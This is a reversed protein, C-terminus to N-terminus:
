AKETITVTIVLDRMSSSVIAITVEESNTFTIDASTSSANLTYSSPRGSMSTTVYVTFTEQGINPLWDISLTYTGATVTLPSEYGEEGSPVTIDVPEGIKLPTVEVPEGEVISFSFKGTEMSIICFTMKEGAELYFSDTQETGNEDEAWLPSGEPFDFKYWGSTNATYEFDVASWSEFDLTFTNGAGEATFAVELMYIGAADASLILVYDKGGEVNLTLQSVTQSNYTIGTGNGYVKLTYTGDVLAPIKVYLGDESLIEDIVYAYLGPSMFTLADNASTGPGPVTTTTTNGNEDTETVEKTSAELVASAASAVSVSANASVQNLQMKVTEGVGLALYTVGNLETTEVNAPATFTGSSPTFSYLGTTTATFSIWASNGSNTLKNLSELLIFPDAETGAGKSEFGDDPAYYQCPILWDYASLSASIWKYQFEKLFKYLDDNVPYVGDSNASNAYASLLNNYNLREVLQGNEYKGVIFTSEKSESNIPLLNIPYEGVRALTKTLNALLLPGSESGVHYYGDGGKVVELTGDLPMLTLKGNPNNEYKSTPATFPVITTQVVEPETADGTRTVNVTVECDADAYIAFFQMARAMDGYVTLELTITDESSTVTDIIISEHPKRDTQNLYCYAETATFNYMSVHASSTTSFSVEYVGAAAQTAKARGEDDGGRPADYTLLYFYSHRDKELSFKNEGKVEKPANTTEDYARKYNLEKHENEFFGNPLYSFSYEISTADGSYEVYTDVARYGYPFNRTVGESNIEDYDALQVRYTKGEEPDFNFGTKGDEGTKAVLTVEKGNVTHTVPIFEHSDSIYGVKFWVDKVPNDNNDKALVNYDYVVPPPDDRHDDKDKCAAIGCAGATLCTASLLAILLKKKKTM